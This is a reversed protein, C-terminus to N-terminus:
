LLVPDAAPAALQRYYREKAEAPPVDGISGLLRQHNFWAVWELTALEVAAKTKWPARRHIVEAKYLGNITEALANDYASGTSGVSPNIGAESLRDSYRISVYQSGQDSHVMVRQKPKRRWVAALLAQLVLDKSMRSDMSWGVVQRSFLDLVVALYLWGEHTRIYTIDTVWAINPAAVDFQRDLINAAVNHPIGGHFGPRRRYGVQARWGRSRMLRAVRYRSCSEGLDCLDHHVKRYGYVRGSDM